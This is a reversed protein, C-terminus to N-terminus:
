KIAENEIGFQIELNNCWIIKLYRELPAMRSPALEMSPWCMCGVIKTTEDTENLEAPVKVNSNNGSVQKICKFDKKKVCVSHLKKM